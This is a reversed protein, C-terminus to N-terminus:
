SNFIGDLRNITSKIDHCLYDNIYWYIFKRAKDKRHWGIDNCLEPLQTLSQLQKTVWHYEPFGYSIIPVEHMLCEIGATSNDIIALRTRPLFDHISEYGERVDVGRAIWENKTRKDLKFRPHVKVVIPFETIQASVREVILKIKELHGGLGFGKVTEDEPMQCIILIHDKPVAKAKRWKLIISDDWKNSRQDILSVIKSWDMDNKPNLHSYMTEYEYPEEFALTSSNAYGINDIAFHKSTPATPKVFLVNSYNMQTLDTHNFINLDEPYDIQELAQEICARAHGFSGSWEFKHDYIKYAV